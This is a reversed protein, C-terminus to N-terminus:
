LRDLRDRWLAEVHAYPLRFAQRIVAEPTRGPPQVALKVVAEIGERRALLDLLTGGLLAADRFRPPFAPRPGERLRRAIAPRAHETQGGLLQAAGDVLWGWRHMRRVNDPKFPPPLGPNNLGLVLQAYLAFPTRELMERSGPVNSARERLVRPTLVHIDRAGYWGALYRRAAPATLARLVPLLPQAMSLAFSSDHIVVTVEGPPEPVLADIRERAEDLEALMRAADEADREEHRARFRASESEVWAM